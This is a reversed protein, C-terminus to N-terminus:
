VKCGNMQNMENRKRNSETRKMEDQITKVQHSKKKTDNQQQPKTGENRKTENSLLRCWNRDRTRAEGDFGLPCLVFGGPAAQLSQLVFVASEPSVLCVVLHPETNGMVCSRSLQFEGRRRTTRPTLLPSRLRNLTVAKSIQRYITCLSFM